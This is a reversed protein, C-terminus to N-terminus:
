NARVGAAGTSPAAGQVGVKEADGSKGEGKFDGAKVSVAKSPQVHKKLTANVDTLSLASLKDNLSQEFEMTRGLELQDRLMRAVVADDALARARRELLGVRASKLEEATFGSAVAKELEEQFGTEIKAVNQPAFIAYGCLAGNDGFSPAALYTGAGYSLGEKERLRRPVRGARYGGGLLTDVMTLAAYDPSTDSLPFAFCTGFFANAKDPTALELRAPQVEQHPAPIREFKAAVQFSGFLSSLQKQVEATEFDGVVSLMGNQAGYFKAHFDRLQEVKVGKAEAIVDDYSPFALPHGKPYANVRQRLALSGLQTPQDKAQEAAAIVERRLTELEASAFSPAKLAEAILELARSLQPRKVELDVTVSQPDTSVRMNAKLKDLADQLQERSMTKTGRLIM